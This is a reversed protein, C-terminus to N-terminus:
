SLPFWKGPLWVQCADEQEEGNVGLPGKVIIVWTGEDPEDAYTLHGAVNRFRVFKIEKVVARVWELSGCRQWGITEGVLPLRRGKLDAQLMARRQPSSKVLDPTVEGSLHGFTLQM